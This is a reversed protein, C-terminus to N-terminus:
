PEAANPDHSDTNFAAEDMSFQLSEVSTIERTHFRLPLGVSPTETGGIVLGVENKPDHRSPDSQEHSTSTIASILICVAFGAVRRKV